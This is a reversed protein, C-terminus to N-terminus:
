EKKELRSKEKARCPHLAKFYNINNRTKRENLTGTTVSTALGRYLL